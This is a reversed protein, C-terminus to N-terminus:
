SVDGDSRSLSAGVTGAGPYLFKVVVYGMGVIQLFNQAVVMPLFWQYDKFDLIKYGVLGTLLVHFGLLGTIWWILWKSWRGRLDFFQQRGNVEVAKAKADTLRKEAEFGSPGPDVQGLNRLDEVKPRQDLSTGGSDIVGDLSEAV